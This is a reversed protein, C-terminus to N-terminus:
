SHPGLAAQQRALDPALSGDHAGLFKFRGGNLHRVFLQSLERLPEFFEDRVLPIALELLVHEGTPRTAGERAM